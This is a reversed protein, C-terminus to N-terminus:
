LCSTTSNPCLSVTIKHSFIYLLNMLKAEILLSFKMKRNLVFIESSAIVSIQLQQLLVGRVFQECFQNWVELLNQKEQEGSTIAKKIAKMENLIAQAEDLKYGGQTDAMKM